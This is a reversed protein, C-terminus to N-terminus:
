TADGPPPTAPLPHTGSAAPQPSGPTAKPPLVTLRLAVMVLDGPAVARPVDLCAEGEALLSAGQEAEAQVARWAKPSCFVSVSAPSPAPLGKPPLTKTPCDLELVLAQQWPQPPAALTGVASMKVGLAIVREGTAEARPAPRGAKSPRVGLGAPRSTYRPVPWLVPQRLASAEISRVSRPIPPLVPVAQARPTTSVPAFPRADLRRSVTLHQNRPRGPLRTSLGADLAQAARALPWPFATGPVGSTRRPRPLGRNRSQPLTRIESSPSWRAPM